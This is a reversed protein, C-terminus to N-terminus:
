SVRGTDKEFKCLSGVIENGHSMNQELQEECQGWKWGFRGLYDSNWIKEKESDWKAMVPLYRIEAVEALIGWVKSKALDKAVTQTNSSDPDREKEPM